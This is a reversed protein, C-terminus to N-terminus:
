AQNFDTGRKGGTIMKVLERPHLAVLIVHTAVFMALLTLGALHIARASDYGGCLWTLYHLQVPQYLALGSIVMVIGFLLASTYALRQLGNYFDNEPAAPRLRVYYAFQAIANRLDRRPLFLRRRWQGSVILYIVYCLGTLTFFWAFAFHLQRGGQLWGGLRLWGPPPVGQFPYWSYLAGRPGLNPYATFIQLGSGAMIALFVANCWHTIRIPWPQERHWRAPRKAAAPARAKEDM